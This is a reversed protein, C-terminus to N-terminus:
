LTDLLGRRTMVIEDHPQKIKLPACLDTARLDDLIEDRTLVRGANAALLYLLSPGNKLVTRPPSM